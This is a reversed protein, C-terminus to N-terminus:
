VDKRDTGSPGRGSRRGGSLRPWIQTRQRRPDNGIEIRGVIRQVAPPFPTAWVATVVAMAMQRLVDKGGDDEAEFSRHDFMSPAATM